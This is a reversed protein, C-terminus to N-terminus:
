QMMLLYVPTDPHQSYYTHSNSTHNKKRTNEEVKWVPGKKFYLKKLSVCGDLGTTIM